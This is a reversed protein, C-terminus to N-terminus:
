SSERAVRPNRPTSRPALGKRLFTWRPKATTLPRRPRPRFTRADLELNSPLDARALVHDEVIGGAKAVAEGVDAEAEAESAAGGALAVLRLAHADPMAPRLSVCDMAYWRAADHASLMKAYASSPMPAGTARSFHAAVAVRAPTTPLAASASAVDHEALVAALGPDALLKDLDPPPSGPVPPPRQPAPPPPRRKVDKWRHRQMATTTLKASPQPRRAFPLPSLSARCAGHTLARALTGSLSSVMVGPSCRARGEARDCGLGDPAAEGAPRHAARQIGAGDKFRPRVRAQQIKRFVIGIYCQQRGTMHTLRYPVGRGARGFPRAHTCLPTAGSHQTSLPINQGTVFRSCTPFHAPPM